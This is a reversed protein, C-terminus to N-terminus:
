KLSDCEATREKKKFCFFVDLPHKREDALQPPQTKQRGIMVGEEDSIPGVALSPVDISPRHRKIMDIYQELYSHTCVSM